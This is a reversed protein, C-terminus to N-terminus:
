EARPAVLAPAADMWRLVRLELHDPAFIDRSFQVPEGGTLRMTELLELVATTRQLGLARGTRSRPAVLRPLVRTEANAVPVGAEILADLVMGGEELTRRLAAASPLSVEPHVVDLMLAAPEGNALLLRSATLAPTGPPLAFAEAVDAGIPAFAVELNEVALRVGRERALASYPVLRELGEQLAATGEVRAVFTGSGQRRAIEGTEELRQLATRLTGRSVGLM